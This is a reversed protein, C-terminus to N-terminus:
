LGVWAGRSALAAEIFRMGRVGDAYGPALSAEGRVARAAEAYLGAFADTFCADWREMPVAQAAGVFEAVELLQLEEPSDLRWRLSRRSGALWMELGKGGGPVVQSVWLSGRAGGAFRWLTTADTPLPLHFGSVEANLEIVRDGTVFEALHICHTGLDGLTGGPGSRLPDARWGEAAGPKLRGDQAWGIRVLQLEGLAGEAVLRRAERVAPYASYNYTVVFPRAPAWDAVEALTRALPKDCIVAVGAADFARAMEMHLHNPTVISVAELGASLLERWDSTVPCGWDTTAAVEPRSSPAARVLEFAGSQRAAALHVPGIKAGGGGGVM